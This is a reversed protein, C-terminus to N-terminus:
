EPVQYGKWLATAINGYRQEIFDYTSNFSRRLTKNLKDPLQMLQETKPAANIVESSDFACLDLELFNQLKHYSEEQFLREYFEYHIQTKNFVKEINLITKEYRSKLHAASSRRKRKLFEFEDFKIQKEKPMNKKRYRAASWAREIPDRMLFIVKVEFGRKELGTKILRFTRPQLLAYEPTIDGVAQTIDSKLYLYDFYDFYNEVNDIFSLDITQFRKDGKSMNRGLTNSEYSNITNQICQNLQLFQGKKRSSDNLRDIADFVHYEKRHGLNFTANKKFQRHLWTTGAKQAGVGLIFTKKM